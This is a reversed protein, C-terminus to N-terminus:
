LLNGEEAGGTRDTCLGQVDDRLVGIPELDDGETSAGVNLEESLLDLLKAGLHDTELVGGLYSLVFLLGGVGRVCARVCVCVCV